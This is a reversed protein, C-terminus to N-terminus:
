RVTFVGNTRVLDLAYTSDGLRGLSVSKTAAETGNVFVRVSATTSGRSLCINKILQSIDQGGIPIAGGGLLTILADISIGLLGALVETPLSKCDQQYTLQVRYIGDQRSDALVIREPEEKPAFALWSPSGYSGWNMPMPTQKNCVFGFPHELTMDVDRLDKDFVSNNGNDYTMELKVVSNGSGMVGNATVSIPVSPRQPDNSDELLLLGTIPGLATATVAVQLELYKTPEVPPLQQTNPSTFLDTSPMMNGSVATWRQKVLLPSGGENVITLTKFKSTGLAVDGLDLMMDPTVSMKPPTASTGKLPISLMGKTTNVVLNASHNELSSPHYRVTFNISATADATLPVLQRPLSLSQEISENAGTVVEFNKDGAPEVKVSTVQLPATGTGRNLIQVRKDLARRQEIFGFEVPNPTVALQPTGIYNARLPINLSGYEKDDSLFTLATKSERVTTPTYSVSLQVSRGPFIEIPFNKGECFDCSFGKTKDALKAEYVTLTCNGINSLTVNQLVTAQADLSSFDISYPTPQLIPNGDGVLECRKSEKAVCEYNECLFGSQCDDDTRCTTAVVKDKGCAVIAVLGLTVLFAAKM